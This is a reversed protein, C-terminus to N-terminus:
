KGGKGNGSVNEAHGPGASQGYKSVVQGLSKERVLGQAMM